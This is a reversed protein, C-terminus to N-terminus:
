YMEKVFINCNLNRSLNSKGGYCWIGLREHIFVGYMCLCIKMSSRSEDVCRQGAAFTNTIQENYM